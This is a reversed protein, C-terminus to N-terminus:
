KYKEVFDLLALTVLDQKRFQALKTKALKNFKDVASESVMFSRTKIDTTYKPNIEVASYTAKSPKSLKEVKDQLDLLCKIIEDQTMKPVEDKVFLKEQASYKYGLKEAKRKLERDSFKKVESPVKALSKVDKLVENIAQIDEITITDM